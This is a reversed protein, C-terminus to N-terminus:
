HVLHGTIALLGQSVSSSLRILNIESLLYHITFTSDANVAQRNEYEPKDDFTVDNNVKLFLNLGVLNWHKGLDAPL